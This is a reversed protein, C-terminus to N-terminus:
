IKRVEKSGFLGEPKFALIIAMVFFVIFLIPALWHKRLIEGLILPNYDKNVIVKRQNLSM